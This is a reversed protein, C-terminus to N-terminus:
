LLHYFPLPLTRRVVPWSSESPSYLYIEVREKVQASSTSPRNVGRRPRKVEPFLSGTGFTRPETPWLAPTSPLLFDRRWRSEIRPDELVYRTVISVSSDRHPTLNKRVPRSRGQPVGLRTCLPFRTEKGPTFRGPHLTLWGVWRTGLNFFSYLQVQM